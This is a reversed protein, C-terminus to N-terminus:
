KFLKNRFVEIKYSSVEERLSTRVSETVNQHLKVELEKLNQEQKNFKRKNKPIATECEKLKDEIIRTEEQQNLLKSNQKEIQQQLLFLKQKKLDKERQISELKLEGDRQLMKNM